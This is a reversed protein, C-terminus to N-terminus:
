PVTTLAPLRAKVIDHITWYKVRIKRRFQQNNTIATVAFMFVYRRGRCFHFHWFHEVASLICETRVQTLTEIECSQCLLKEAVVFLLNTNEIRKAHFLRYSVTVLIEYPCCLAALEYVSCASKASETSFEGPATEVTRCCITPTQPTQSTSSAKSPWVAAKKLRLAKSSSM